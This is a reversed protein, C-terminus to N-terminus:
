LHERLHAHMKEQLFKQLHAAWEGAAGSGIPKADLTVIPVAGRVANVLLIERAQEVEKRALNCERLTTITDFLLGRAIGNVCGLTLPPTCLVGDRRAVVINSYSGEVLLDNTDFLLAEHCNAVRAAQHAAAFFDRAVLKAGPLASPGPHPVPYSLAAAASPVDILSRSAALVQTAGAGDRQLDVRVAGRGVRFHKMGLDCFAHTLLDPTPPILGLQKADRLLRAIQAALLHPAGQTVLATSFCGGGPTTDRYPSFFPADLFAGNQWEYRLDSSM